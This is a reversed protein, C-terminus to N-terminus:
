ALLEKGSAFQATRVRQRGTAERLQGIPGGDMEM